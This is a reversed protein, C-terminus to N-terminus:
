FVLFITVMHDLLEEGYIYVSVSISISISLSFELDSVYM